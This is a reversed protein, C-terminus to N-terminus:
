RKSFQPTNDENRLLFPSVSTPRLKEENEITVQQTNGLNTSQFREKGKSLALSNPNNAWSSNVVLCPNFDEENKLSDPPFLISRIDDNASFVSYNKQYSPRHQAQQQLSLQEIDRLLSSKQAAENQEEMIEPQSSSYVNITREAHSSGENELM